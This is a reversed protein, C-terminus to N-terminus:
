EDKRSHAVVSGAIVQPTSQAVLKAFL